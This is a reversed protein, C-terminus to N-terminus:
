LTGLEEQLSPRRRYTTKLEELYALWEAEKGMWTYAKEMRKLWGIAIVYYKRQVKAILDEAQKRSVVIVWEPRETVMADAAKAIVSYNWNGLRDVIAIAQDWEKEFLYIDVLVDEHCHATQEAELLHRKLNKWDEPELAKIKRYLHLSPLDSFAHTYARIAPDRRGQKEELVGLWAGIVDKKGALELGREAIRLAEEHRGAEEFAQAAELAEVAHTLKRLATELAEQFDGMQIKKQVYRHYLEEEVCLSFFEALRGSRELINLKAQNLLFKGALVDKQEDPPPNVWGYDLATLVTDLDGFGFDELSDVVKGFDKKLQKKEDEHLELSLIAETLPVTLQDFFMSLSGSSDDFQDYRMGVETFLLSLIVLAHENKGYALLECALNQIQYLSEVVGEMRWYAESMWLGDLSHLINQIEKRYETKLKGIDRNQDAAKYGSRRMKRFNIEAQVLTYLDSNKESLQIILDALADRDLGSLKERIGQRIGFKEPENIYTLLLAIIHKCLGSSDYPCSCYAERISNEDLEVEVDYFPVMRGQCRGNLKNGLLFTDTVADDLYLDYGRQYSQLTSLAELTEETIKNEVM